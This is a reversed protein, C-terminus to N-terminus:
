QSQYREEQYTRGAVSPSPHLMGRGRWCETFDHRDDRLHSSDTASKLLQQIVGLILPWQIPDSSATPEVQPLPSDSVGAGLCFPM